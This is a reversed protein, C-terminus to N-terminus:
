PARESAVPEKVVPPALVMAVAFVISVVALLAAAALLPWIRERRPPLTLLSRARAMGARDLHSDDSAM